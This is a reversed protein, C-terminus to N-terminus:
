CGCRWGYKKARVSQAGAYKETQEVLNVTPTENKRCLSRYELEFIVGSGCPHMKKPNSFSVTM